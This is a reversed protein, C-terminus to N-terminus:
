AADGDSRYSQTGGTRRTSGVIGGDGVPRVLAQRRKLRTAFLATFFDDAARGDGLYGVGLALAYREVIRVFWRLARVESLGGAEGGDINGDIALAIRDLGWGDGLLAADGIDDVEAMAFGRRGFADAANAKPRSRDFAANREVESAGNCITISGLPRCWGAFGPIDTFRTGVALWGIFRQDVFLFGANIDEHLVAQATM